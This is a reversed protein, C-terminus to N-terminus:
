PPLGLPRLTNIVETVKTEVGLDASLEFGSKGPVPKRVRYGLAIECLESEERGIFLCSAYNKLLM